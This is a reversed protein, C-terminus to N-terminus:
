GREDDQASEAYRRRIGLADAIRFWFIKLVVAVGAVGGLLVQILISASSPDLYGFRRFATNRFLRILLVTRFVHTM